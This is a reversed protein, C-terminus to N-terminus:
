PNGSYPDTDYPNGPYPASPPRRNGPNQNGPQQNGPQQEGPPMDRPRQGQPHPDGAAQNGPYPIGSDQSSGYPNGPYQNGPRNGSPANGSSEYHHGALPNGPHRYPTPAAFTAATAKARRRKVGAIVLILVGALGFFLFSGIAGFIAGVFGLVSSRPGVGFTAASASACSVSYQGSPVPEVSRLVVYWSKSNITITESGLPRSLPIATGNSDTAQCSAQLMPQSAYVTLGERDLRVPGATIPKPTGPRNDIAKWLFFGTLVLGMALLGVAVVTWARSPGPAPGGPAGQSPGPSAPVGSQPYSTM